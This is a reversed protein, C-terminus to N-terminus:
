PESNAPDDLWAQHKLLPEPRYNQDERWRRITSDSINEPAPPADRISKMWYVLKKFVNGSGTNALPAMPNSTFEPSTLMDQDLELGLNQAAGALWHFAGNSLGREVGGGGVSGHVGPFWVQKVTQGPRVKSEWLTVPFLKRQEDIAVAHYANKVIRSLKIDHFRYREASLASFVFGKPIGRQGVTDWVGLFTVDAVKGYETRLEVVKPDDPGIKHSQYYKQALITKDIHKRSIIGCSRILGALSRATYAGRSFGFIYIEDGAHHNFCLFRYADQVNKELGAGFAGGLFRDVRALRGEGSGVGEDYFVVQETSDKAHDLVSQAMLVVNTPNPADLRNWTGDLCVVLRKM